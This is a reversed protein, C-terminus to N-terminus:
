FLQPLFVADPLADRAVVDQEIVRTRDPSYGSLFSSRSPNCLAYQTYARDFRVGRTALKDINPSHVLSQGYCNLDTNLDDVVIWLVNRKPPDAANAFSGLSLLLSLLLFRKM